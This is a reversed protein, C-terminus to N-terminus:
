TLDAWRDVKEDALWRPLLDRLVAPEFRAEELNDIDAWLFDIREERPQVYSDAKLGPVNMEFVLNIESQPVGHQVFAHEVAGLFRGVAVTLGTEELMERALSRRASEMFEVHGGPLYTNDAGTSHCLLLRSNRVCVGRALTEIIPERNKM